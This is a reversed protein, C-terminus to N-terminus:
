GTKRIVGGIASMVSDLSLSFLLNRELHCPLLCSECGKEKQLIRFKEAFDGGMVNIGGRHFMNCAHIAGNPYVFCFYKAAQCKINRMRKDSYSRPYYPWDAVAKLYGESNLIPMGDKKRAALYSFIKKTEQPDLYLDKIDRSGKWNDSVVLEDPNFQLLQFAARTGSSVAFKLVDDVMGANLRTIVMGHCVDIGKARCAIIADVARKYTGPGRLKEHVSEPGDLSIGINDVIKLEDVNEKVGYGNSSLLVYMKRAKCFKIIDIVGEKLMPEGGSISITKVGADAMSGMAEKWQEVSMEGAGANEPYNCYTCRQNCRNTIQVGVSMPYKKNFIAAYAFRFISDVVDGKRLPM